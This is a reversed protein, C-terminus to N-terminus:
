KPGRQPDIKTNFNDPPFGGWQRTLHRASESLLGHIRQSLDPTMRSVPAAVAMAGICTANANFVPAAHSYVDEEFGGVSIAIGTSRIDALQARIAESNTQTQSTHATLGHSLVSAVFDAPSFALVALGSSTAHLSLIEADEMHVFTGHGAGYAFSLTSLTQGHLLSIHATECTQNALTELLVSASERMPVNHERLAALRLFQPGLRYQRGAGVQEVMGFDALEGLLRHTTAKNLGSLRSLASLGILPQKRSFFDLLSLAKSTTGM